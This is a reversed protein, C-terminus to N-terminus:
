VGLLMGAGFLGRRGGLPVRDAPSARSERTRIVFIGFGVLVMAGATRFWPTDLGIPFGVTGVFLAIATFAVIVGGCLVLVDSRRASVAAAPVIPVLPLISPTLISLVGAAFSLAYTGTAADM